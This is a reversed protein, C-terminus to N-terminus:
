SGAAICTECTTPDGMKTEYARQHAEALLQEADIGDKPFVAEGVTISLAIERLLRVKAQTAEAPCDPLVVVLEDEGMRALYDYERCSERLREALGQLAKDGELNCVLVTLQKSERKCRAIESDLHLFLSRANPLGTLLDITACTEAQRYRLANEISVAVKRTLALLLRLHDPTFADKDAHYLTLVGVM